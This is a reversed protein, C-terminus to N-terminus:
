GSNLAAACRRAVPRSTGRRVANQFCAAPQSHRALNPAHRRGAARVAGHQRGVHQLPAATGGARLHLRHDAAGAAARCHSHADAGAIRPESLPAADARRVLLSLWHFTSFDQCLREIRRTALLRISKLMITHRLPLTERRKLFFNSDYIIRLCVPVLEPLLPQIKIGLFSMMYGLTNLFAYQKKLPVVKAADPLENAFDVSRSFSQLLIAAFVALDEGHGGLFFKIITARKARM